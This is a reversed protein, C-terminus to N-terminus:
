RSADDAVDRPPVDNAHQPNHRGRGIPQPPQTPWAEDRGHKFRLAAKDGDHSTGAGVPRKLPRIQSVSPQAKIAQLAVAADFKRGRGDVADHRCEERPLLARRQQRAGDENSHALATPHPRSAGDIGKLRDITM